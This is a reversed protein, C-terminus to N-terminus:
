PRAYECRSPPPFNSPTFEPPLTPHSLIPVETTYHSKATVSSATRSTLSTPHFLPPPSSATALATAAPNAAMGGVALGSPGSGAHWSAGGMKEREIMHMHGQVLWKCCGEIAKLSKETAKQHQVLSQSIKSAVVKLQEEGKLQGSQMERSVSDLESAHFKRLTNFEQITFGKLDRIEAQNLQSENQIEYLENGLGSAYEQMSSIEKQIHELNTQWIPLKDLVGLIQKQLEGVAMKVPQLEQAIKGQAQIEAYVEGKGQVSDIQIQDVRSELAGLRAFINEFNEPLIQGTNSSTAEGGNSQAQQLVSIQGRLQGLMERLAEMARANEQRLNTLNNGQNEMNKELGEFTGRSEANDGYIRRLDQKIHNFKQDTEGAWLRLESIQKELNGLVESEFNESPPLMPLGEGVWQLSSQLVGLNPQEDRERRRKEIVVGYEVQGSSVNNAAREIARSNEPGWEILNGEGEAEGQEIGTMDESVSAHLQMELSGEGSIPVQISQPRDLISLIQGLEGSVWPLRPLEAYFTFNKEEM